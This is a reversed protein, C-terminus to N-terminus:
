SRRSSQAGARFHIEVREIPRLGFSECRERNVERGPGYQTFSPWSAREINEPYEFRLEEGSIWEYRSPLEIEGTEDPEEGACYRCRM